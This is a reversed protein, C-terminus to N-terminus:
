EALKKKGFGVIWGDNVDNFFEKKDEKSLDTISEIDYDKMKERFYNEYDDKLSLAQKEMLDKDDHKAGVGAIWGYQIKNFFDKKDEESLDAPSEVNYEALKAKFFKSYEEQKKSENIFAQKNEFYKDFSLIM